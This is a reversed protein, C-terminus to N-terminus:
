GPLTSTFRRLQPPRTQHRACYNWILPLSVVLHPDVALRVLQAPNEPVTRQRARGFVQHLRRLRLLLLIQLLVSACWILTHAALHGCCTGLLVGHVVSAGSGWLQSRSAMISSTHASPLTASPPPPLFAWRMTFRRLWTKQRRRIPIPIVVSETQ